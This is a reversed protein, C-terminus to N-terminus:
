IILDMDELYERMTYKNTFTFPGRHQRGFIRSDHIKKTLMFSDMDALYERIM